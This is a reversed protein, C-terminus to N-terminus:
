RSTSLLRATSGPPRWRNYYAVPSTHRKEALFVKLHAEILGLAALVLGQPNFALGTPFEDELFANVFGVADTGLATLIEEESAFLADFKEDILACELVYRLGDHRSVRERECIGLGIRHADFFGLLRGTQGVLGRDAPSQDASLRHYERHHVKLVDAAAHPRDHTLLEAM